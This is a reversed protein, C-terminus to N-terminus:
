GGFDILFYTNAYNGKLRALLHRPWARAAAAVGEEAQSAAMERASSTEKRASEADTRALV